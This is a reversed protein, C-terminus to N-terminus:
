DLINQSSFLVNNNSKLQETTDLERHGGLVTARWAGRVMANGLCSHRLPSCERRWPFRGLGPISSVDGACAPLNKVASGGPFGSAGELSIKTLTPSLGTQM